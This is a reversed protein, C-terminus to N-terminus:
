SRFLRTYQTEHRGSAVAQMSTSVGIDSDMFHSARASLTDIQTNLAHLMRQGASQGLPMLKVVALMQNEAWAWAYTRLVDLSAINWRAFAFAFATAHAVGAHEHATTAPFLEM